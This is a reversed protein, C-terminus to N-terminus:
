QDWQFITKVSASPFLTTFGPAGRKPITNMAMLVLLLLRGGDFHHTLHQLSQSYHKDGNDEWLLGFWQREVPM